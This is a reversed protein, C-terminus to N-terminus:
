THYCIKKDLERRKTEDQTYDYNKIKEGLKRSKFGFDIAMEYEKLDGTRKYARWASIALYLLGARIEMDEKKTEFDIMFLRLDKSGGRGNDKGV